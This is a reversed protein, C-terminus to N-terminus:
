KQLNIINGLITSSSCMDAQRNWYIIYSDPQNVPLDLEIDTIDIVGNEDWVPISLTIEEGPHLWPIFGYDWALESYGLQPSGDSSILLNFLPNTLNGSDPLMNGASDAVELWGRVYGGDPAYSTDLDFNTRIGQLQTLDDPQILNHTLAESM